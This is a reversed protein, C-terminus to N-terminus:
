QFILFRVRSHERLLKIIGFFFDTDSFIPTWLDRLPPSVAFPLAFYLLAVPDLKFAGCGPPPLRFFDNQALIDPTFPDMFSEM